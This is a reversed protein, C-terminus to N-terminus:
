DLFLSLWNLSITFNPTGSKGIGSDLHFRNLAATTYDINPSVYTDTQVSLITVTYKGFDLGEGIAVEVPDAQLAEPASATSSSPAALNSPAHMNFSGPEMLMFYGIILGVFVVGVGLLQLHQMHESDAHPGSETDERVGSWSNSSQDKAGEDDEGERSGVLISGALIAAGLLAIVSTWYGPKEDVRITAIVSTAMEHAAQELSSSSTKEAQAVLVAERRIREADKFVTMGGLTAALAIVSTVLTVKAIQQAKGMFAAIAGALTVLFAACLLLNFGTNRVGSRDGVSYHVNGLAMDVGSMEGIPHGACSIAAWPLFFGFLAVAKAIRVLTLKDM